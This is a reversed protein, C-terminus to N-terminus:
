TMSWASVRSLACSLMRQMNMVGLSSSASASFIESLFAPIRPMKQPPVSIVGCNWRQTRSSTSSPTKKAGM